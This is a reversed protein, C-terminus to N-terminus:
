YGKYIILKYDMTSNKLYFPRIKKEIGIINKSYKSIM